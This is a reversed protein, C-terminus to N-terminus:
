AASPRSAVDAGEMAHARLRNRTARTDNRYLWVIANLAVLTILLLPMTVMIRAGDM